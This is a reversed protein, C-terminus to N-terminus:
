EPDRPMVLTAVFFIKDKQSGAIKNVMRETLKTRFLLDNRTNYVWFEM